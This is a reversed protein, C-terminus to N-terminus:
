QSVVTLVGKMGDNRTWHVQSGAQRLTFCYPKGELWMKWKQCLQDRVVWWTGQDYGRGLWSALDQTRGVMTGDSKFSIPITGIPTELRLTKGSGAQEVAHGNLPKADNAFAAGASVVAVAACGGRVVGIM